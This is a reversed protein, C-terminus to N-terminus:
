INAEGKANTQVRIGVQQRLAVIFERKLKRVRASFDADDTPLVMLMHLHDPLVVLAPLRFPM